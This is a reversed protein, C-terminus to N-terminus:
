IECLQATLGVTSASEFSYSISDLEALAEALERELRSIDRKM